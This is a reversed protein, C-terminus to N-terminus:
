EGITAMLPTGSYSYFVGLATGDMHEIIIDVPLWVETLSIACVQLVHHLGMFESVRYEMYEVAVPIIPPECEIPLITIM